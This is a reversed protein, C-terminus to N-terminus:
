ADGERRATTRMAGAPDSGGGAESLAFMGIKTGSILDPVFRKAQDETGWNYITYPCTMAQMNMAYGFEPALRSIEQAIVAVALFGAHSGGLEEPFAAGFFGAEGMKRILSHPFEGSQEYADRCPKIETECFSAVSDKLLCLEEPLDFNV